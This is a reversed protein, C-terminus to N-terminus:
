IMKGHLCQEHCYIKVGVFGRNNRLSRFVWGVM